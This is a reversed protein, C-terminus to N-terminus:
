HKTSLVKVFLFFKPVRNADLLVTGFYHRSKASVTQQSLLLEKEKLSFRTTSPLLFLFSLGVEGSVTGMCM